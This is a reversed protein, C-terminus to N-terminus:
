RHRRESLHHRRVVLVFSITDAYPGIVPLGDLLPALEASLAAGGFAGALIGVLTIGVQVTSLLATPDDSMELALQAGKVGDEAM